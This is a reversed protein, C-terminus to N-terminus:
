YTHLCKNIVCLVDFADFNTALCAAKEGRNSVPHGSSGTFCRGSQLGVWRQDLSIYLSIYIKHFHAHGVIHVLWTFFIGLTFLCDGSHRFKTWHPDGQHCIDSQTTEEISNRLRSSKKLQCVPHGSSNAFYDGLFYGLGNKTLISLHSKVHFVTAEFKSNNSIKLFIAWLLCYAFIRWTQDGQRVFV